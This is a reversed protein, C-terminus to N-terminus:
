VDWHKPGYQRCCFHLRFFRTKPLTHNIAINESIVSFSHMFNLYGEFAIYVARYSSFLM